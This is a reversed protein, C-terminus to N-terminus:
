MKMSWFPSWGECKEEARGETDRANWNQKRPGKTKIKKKIKFFNNKKKFKGQNRNPNEARDM